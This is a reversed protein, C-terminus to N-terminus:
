RGHDLEVPATAASVANGRAVAERHHLARVTADDVDIAGPTERPVAALGYGMPTPQSPPSAVFGVAAGALWRDQGPRSDHFWLAHIPPRSEALDALLCGPDDYDRVQGDRTQLQAAFRPDGVHMRCFACPTRDWAVPEPGDPLRNARRVALGLAIAAAVGLGALLLARRPRRKNSDRM